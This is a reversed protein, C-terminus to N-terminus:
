SCHLSTKFIESEIDVSLRFFLFVSAISVLICIASDVPRGIVVGAESQQTRLFAYIIYTTVPLILFSVIKAQHVNGFNCGIYRNLIEFIALAQPPYIFQDQADFYTQQYLQSFDHNSGVFALANNIPVWSDGAQRLLAVSGLAKLNSDLLLVTMLLGPLLCSYVQMWGTRGLATEKTRALLSLCEDRFSM